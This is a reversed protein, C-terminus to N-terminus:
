METPEVEANAYHVALWVTPEDPTTWEVRHKKHAPISVFDGPRMEVTDNEFRLRAAGKLVVVWEHQEQDYWFGEPSTHGHSVIREIRVNAAALLTAFLEDPLHVPLDAFLNGTMLEGPNVTNRDRGAIVILPNEAASLRRSLRETASAGRIPDRSYEQRRGRRDRCREDEDRFARNGM